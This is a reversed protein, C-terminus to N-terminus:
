RRMAGLRHHAHGHGVPGRDFCQGRGREVLQEGGLGVPQAFSLRSTAPMWKSQDLVWRVSSAIAANSASASAIPDPAALALRQEGAVITLAVSPRAASCVASRPSPAGSSTARAARQWARIRASISAISAPANPGIRWTRWTPM